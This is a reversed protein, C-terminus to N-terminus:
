DATTIKSFFWQRFKPNANLHGQWFMCMVGLGDLWTSCCGWGHLTADQKQYIAWQSCCCCENFEALSAPAFHKKDPSVIGPFMNLLAHKSCKGGYCALNPTNQKRIPQQESNIKGILTSIVIDQPSIVPQVLGDVHFWWLLVTFYTSEHLPKNAFM